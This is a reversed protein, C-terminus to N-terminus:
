SVTIAYVDVTQHHWSRYQYGQVRDAMISVIQSNALNLSVFDSAIQEQVTAYAACRATQDSETQAQNTLSDVEANVYGGWNQAGIFQSNFNQYLIASADPFAPFAYIMGLQPRTEAKAAMEAYTPYTVAQVELTLGVDAMNSQLLTAAQEMETTAELYTMTVTTGELGNAAVIERAKDPDYTPQPVETFCQMGSPLPGVLATGAGLLIDQIHQPYNYSYAIAERLAANATVENDMDFFVYLAVNTDAKNVTFGAAAEFSAWDAPAIDMAIDIDGGELAAKQTAQDSLYQFQVTQAQGSFGGWYGEYREFTASQNSKYDKFVYPGSGADNSALWSQGDDDGANAEVLASNLVYVRTLSPLFVADAQSLTIVLETDSTAESSEYSTLYSAVGAGLRVIRDFTYKVDNATLKAGDHFTVDDRLTLTVTLGDESVQWDTVLVGTLAKAADYTFLSDYAPIVVEDVTSNDAQLPDFTAPPENEAIILSTDRSVEGGSPGAVDTSGTAGGSASDDGGGGGCAALALSAAVLLAVPGRRRNKSTQGIGPKLSPTNM